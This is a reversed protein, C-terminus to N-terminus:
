RIVSPDFRFIVPLFDNSYSEPLPGFAKSSGASEVAGQAELDFAYVGSKTLFRFEGVTGDRKLIFFVEARLAGPNRPKFRLAIQRVINNLYAPDSFEVGETRVNAVDTGTGGTPGGGARTTPVDKPVSKPQPTPTAPASRKTPAKPKAPAPMDRPNVEARKPPAPPTPTPPPTPARTVEGIAREGAPAAVLNVKYVPPLARSPGPRAFFAAAILSAHLMVSVGFPGGLRITSERRQM